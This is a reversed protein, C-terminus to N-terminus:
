SHSYMSFYSIPILPYVDRNARGLIGTLISQDELDRFRSACTLAHHWSIASDDLGFDLSAKAFASDEESKSDLIRGVVVISKEEVRISQRVPLYSGYLAKFAEQAARFAFAVGGACYGHFELIDALKVEIVDSTTVGVLYADRSKMRISVGPISVPPDSHPSEAAAGLRPM